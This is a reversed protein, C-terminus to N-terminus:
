SSLRNLRELGQELDRLNLVQGEVGPFVMRLAAEKEGDVRVSEVRGETVRINLRGTSIDQEPLWASSTIYGKELYTQTIDRVRQRIDQFTMCGRAPVTAFRTQASRSLVTVGSVEVRQLAYCRSDETLVPEDPLRPPSSAGQLSDRQQQAQELLAKQQQEITNHDAPSLPAAALSVPFVLLIAASFLACPFASQVPM